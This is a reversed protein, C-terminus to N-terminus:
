CYVVFAVLNAMLAAAHVALSAQWWRRSRRDRNRSEAASVSLGILAAMGGGIFTLAYVPISAKTYLFWENTLTFIWVAIVALSPIALVVVFRPDFQDDDNEV